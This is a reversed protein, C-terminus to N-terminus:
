VISGRGGRTERRATPLRWWRFISAILLDFQIFQDVDVSWVAHARRHMQRAIPVREWGPCLCRAIGSRESALAGSHAQGSRTARDTLGTIHIM